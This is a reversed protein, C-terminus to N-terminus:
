AAPKAILTVRGESTGGGDGDDYTVNVKIVYTGAAVLNIKFKAQSRDVGRESAVSSIVIGGVPGSLVTTADLSILRGNNPLDNRFDVAFPQNENVTRTLPVEGRLGDSTGKLIWTRELPVPV